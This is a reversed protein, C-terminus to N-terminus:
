KMVPPYEGTLEFYRNRFDEPSLSTIEWGVVESNGLDLVGDVTSQTSAPEDYVTQSNHISWLIVGSLFSAIVVGWFIRM